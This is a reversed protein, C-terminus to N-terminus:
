GQTKFKKLFTGTKCLLGSSKTNVALAGDLGFIQDAINAAMIM